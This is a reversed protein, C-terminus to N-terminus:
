CVNSKKEKKASGATNQAAGFATHTAPWPVLYEGEVGSKSFGVQLAADMGLM